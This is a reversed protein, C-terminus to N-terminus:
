YNVGRRHAAGVMKRWRRWEWYGMPRTAPSASSLAFKSGVGGHAELMAAIRDHRARHATEDESNVYGDPTIYEETEFDYAHTYLFVRVNGSPNAKFPNFVYQSLDSETVVLKGDASFCLSGISSSETFWTTMLFLEDSFDDSSVFYNCGADVFGGCYVYAQGEVIRGPPTMVSPGELGHGIAEFSVFLAIASLVVLAACGVVFVTAGSMPQSTESGAGDDIESM